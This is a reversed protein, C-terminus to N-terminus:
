PHAESDPLLSLVPGQLQRAFEELMRIDAQRDASASINVQLRALYAAQRAFIGVHRSNMGRIKDMSDLFEGNHVYTALVMQRSGDLSPSRFEYVFFPITRGASLELQRAEQSVEEYGHTRYCVDPRHGLWKRPRGIYGVYVGVTRGTASDFYSRNVYDDDGSIKRTREDIPEDMGKWSGLELPLTALPRAPQLVEGLAAQIRATLARHGLGTVVLVAVVILLPGRRLTRGQHNLPHHNNRNPM